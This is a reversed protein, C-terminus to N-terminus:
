LSRSATRLGEANRVAEREGERGAHDAVLGDVGRQRFTRAPPRAAPRREGVIRTPLRRARGQRLVGSTGGSRALARRGGSPGPCLGVGLPPCIARARRGSPMVSSSCRTRCPSSSSAPATPPATPPPRPPAPAPDAAAHHGRPRGTRSGTGRSHCRSGSRRTVDAPGTSSRASRASRENVSETVRRGSVSSPRGWRWATTPEPHRPM